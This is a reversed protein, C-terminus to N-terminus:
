MVLMRDPYNTCIWIDEGLSAMEKMVDPEDVTWAIITINERHMEEVFEPTVSLYDISVLDAHMAELQEHLLLPHGCIIPGAKIEPALQKAKQVAYHDFSTLIVENEMQYAKVLQIVKEVLGSELNGIQKLEINLLKKGKCMQLVQELSPIGELSYAYGYWSGADLAQLERFTADTVKGEGNTTRSLHYDHIVVPVGDRSLQVDIEIGKIQPNRIALEIAALTNEPARGSCGRHAICYNKM